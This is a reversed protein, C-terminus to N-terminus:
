FGANTINFSIGYKTKDTLNRKCKHKLFSTFIAFSGVDPKIKENIEPFELLQTHKNLYIVGSFLFRDHAHEMTYCSINNKIGWSEELYYKKISTDEDIFDFIQFLIKLFEIDKNFYKFNTMEGKVNTKFSLHDNSNCGENIKKIFYKSNINKIKGTCFFYPQHIKSKIIKNFIM